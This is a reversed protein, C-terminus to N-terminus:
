PTAYYLPEVRPDDSEVGCAADADDVGCAADADDAGRLFHRDRSYDRGGWKKNIRKKNILKKNILQM